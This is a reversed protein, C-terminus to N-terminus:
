SIIDGFSGDGNDPETNDPEPTQQDDTDEGSAVWPSDDKESTWIDKPDVGRWLNEKQGSDWVKGSGGAKEDTEDAPLLDDVDPVTIDEFTFLPETNMNDGKKM